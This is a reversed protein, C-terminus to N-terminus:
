TLAGGATITAPAIVFLSCHRLLVVCFDAARKSPVQRVVSGAANGKQAYVHKRIKDTTERLQTAMIETRGIQLLIYLILAVRDNYGAPLTNDESIKRLLSAADGEVQGLAHEFDLTKGYFYEKYCQNTLNASLIKRHSKLIFANISKGDASFRKLYFKPVFHHKKNDPM